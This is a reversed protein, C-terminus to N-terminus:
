QLRPVAWESPIESVNTKDPVSDASARGPCRAAQGARRLRAGSGPWYPCRCASGSPLAAASAVLDLVGLTGCDTTLAPTAIREMTTGV